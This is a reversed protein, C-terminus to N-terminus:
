IELFIRCLDTFYLLIAKIKTKKSYDNSKFFDYLFTPKTYKYMRGKRFAISYIQVIRLILATKCEIDDIKRTHKELESCVILITKKSELKNLSRMISNPRIFYNYHINNTVFITKANMFTIPTWLEDEHLIGVMFFLNNELLLSRRYTNRWVEIFLKNDKLQLKIFEYGSLLKNDKPINFIRQKPKKQGIYQYNSCIIDINPNKKIHEYFFDCTNPVITDDSDVFIIYDGTAKKIGINRAESPGSNEKNIIIIRNDKNSYTTCIELSNDTSGDNVLIIELNKYTQNIISELCRELYEEVNFIPIIISFLLDAMLTDEKNTIGLSTTIVLSSRLWVM